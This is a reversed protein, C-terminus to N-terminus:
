TGTPPPPPLATDGAVVVAFSGAGILRRGPIEERDTILTTLTGTELDFDVDVLKGLGDGRESLVPKGLVDRDKSTAAHEADDRAVHIRGADTITVADRGFASLDAWDLLTADGEVKGLRLATIRSPAPAVVFGEVRGVKTATSTSVVDHRRAESFRM